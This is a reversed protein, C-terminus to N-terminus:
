RARHTTKAAPRKRVALPEHKASPANILVKMPRHGHQVAIRDQCTRCQRIEGIHAPNSSRWVEMTSVDDLMRHGCLARAPRNTAPMEVFHAIEAAGPTEYKYVYWTSKLESM